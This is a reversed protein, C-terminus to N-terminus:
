EDRAGLGATAIHNANTMVRDRMAVSARVTDSQVFCMRRKLAGNSAREHHELYRPRFYQGGRSAVRGLHAM